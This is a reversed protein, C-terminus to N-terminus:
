NRSATCYEAGPTLPTLKDWLMPTQPYYGLRGPRMVEAADRAMLGVVVQMLVSKGSGNEEVLGVLEGPRIELNAGRLV